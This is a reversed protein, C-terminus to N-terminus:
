SQLFWNKKGCFWVGFRGIIEKRFFSSVELLKYRNDRESKYGDEWNMRERTGGGKIM